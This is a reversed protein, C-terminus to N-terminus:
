TWEGCGERDRDERWPERVCKALKWNGPSILVYKKCLCLKSVKGLSGLLDSSNFYTLRIFVLNGKNSKKKGM